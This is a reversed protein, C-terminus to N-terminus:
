APMTKAGPTVDRGAKLRKPKLRETANTVPRNKKQLNNLIGNPNMIGRGGFSAGNHFSAVNERNANELNETQRQRNRQCAAATHRVCKGRWAFQRRNVDRM